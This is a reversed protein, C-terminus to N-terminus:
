LRSQIATSDAYSRNVGGPPVPSAQRSGLPDPHTPAGSTSNPSERGSQNLRGKISAERQLPGWKAQEMQAELRPAM